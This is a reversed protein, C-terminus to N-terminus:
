GRRDTSDLSRNKRGRDSRAARDPALRSVIACSGAFADTPDAIRSQPSRHRPVTSSVDPSLSRAVAANSLTSCLAAGRGNEKDRRVPGHM